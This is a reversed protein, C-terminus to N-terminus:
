DEIKVKKWRGRREDPMNELVVLAEQDIDWDRGLKKFKSFLEPHNDRIRYIRKYVTGQTVGLEKAAQEVNM